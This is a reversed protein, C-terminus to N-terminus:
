ITDSRQRLVAGEAGNKIGGKAALVKVVARRANSICGGKTAPAVVKGGCAPASHTSLM